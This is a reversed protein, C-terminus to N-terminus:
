PWRLRGILDHMREQLLQLLEPRLIPRTSWRPPGAKHRRHARVLARHRRLMEKQSHPRIITRFRRRSVRHVSPHKRHMDDRQWTAFEDAMQQPFHRLDRQMDELKKLFGSSELDVTIV